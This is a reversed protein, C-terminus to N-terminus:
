CTSKGAAEMKAAPGPRSRRTASVKSSPRRGRGIGDEVHQGSSARAVNKM